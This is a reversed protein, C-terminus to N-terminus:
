RSTSAPVPPNPDPQPRAGDTFGERNPMAVTLLTREDVVASKEIINADALLYAVLAYVDNDSLSGPASQPMTRKIYDWLTTAYPWFSEVTFVPNPTRLSGRGGTLRGDGMAAYEPPMMMGNGWGELKTGHCGACQEAYVAQGRAYTGSGSPLGRGDPPIAHFRSLEASSPTTGFGYQPADGRSPAPLTQANAMFSGMLVGTLVTRFILRVKSGSM